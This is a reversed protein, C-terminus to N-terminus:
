VVRCLSGLPPLAHSHLIQRIHRRSRGIDCGGDAAAVPQQLKEILYAGALPRSYTNQGTNNKSQKGVEGIQIEFDFVVPPLCLVILLLALNLAAISAAAAPYHSRINHIAAAPHQLVACGPLLYSIYYTYVHFCDVLVERRSSSLSKM